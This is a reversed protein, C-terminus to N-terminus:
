GRQSQISGANQHRTHGELAVHAAKMRDKEEEEVTDERHRGHIQIM